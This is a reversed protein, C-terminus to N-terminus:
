NACICYTGSCSEMTASHGITCCHLMVYVLDGAPMCVTVCRQPVLRQAELFLHEVLASREVFMMGEPLPMLPRKEVKGPGKGSYQQVGSAKTLTIDDKDVHEDGPLRIAAQM